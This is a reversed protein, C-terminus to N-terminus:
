SNWFDYVLCNPEEDIPKEILSMIYLVRTILDEMNMDSFRVTVDVEDDLHTKETSVKGSQSQITTFLASYTYTKM